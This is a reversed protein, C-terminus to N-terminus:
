SCVGKVIKQLKEETQELNGKLVLMVKTEARSRTLKVKVNKGGGLSQHLKEILNDISEDVIFPKHGHKGLPSNGEVKRMRRALDETKRVSSSQRLVMKYAEVMLRTDMIAALARAHGETILGQLLGDKLADPLTLLRLSNSIYAQSKSIRKAIEKNSLGFENMLRSFAQARELPNLDTRQVNEVIAMELMGQPTTEKIITPLTKLGAIRSARWRREGAIIQYGAPTKAIVLPELVGHEKISDVLDVLSEPTIQGRPQLPNPQLEDLGIQVIKQEEGAM